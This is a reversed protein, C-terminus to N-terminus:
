RPPEQGQGRPAAAPPARGPGRVARRTSPSPCREGRGGRVPVRGPIPSTRPPRRAPPSPSASAAGCLNTVGKGKRGIGLLPELQPPSQKPPKINSPPKPTEGKGEGQRKGGCLRKATWRGLLRAPLGPEERLAHGPEARSPWARSPPAAPDRRGGRCRGPGPAAPPPLPWARARLPTEPLPRPPGLEAPAGRPERPPRLRRPRAPSAASRARAGAGARQGGGAGPASM